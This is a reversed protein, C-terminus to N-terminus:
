QGQGAKDANANDDVLPDDKSEAGVKSANSDQEVCDDHENVHISELVLLSMLDELPLVGLNQDVDEKSEPSECVKGRTGFLGTM